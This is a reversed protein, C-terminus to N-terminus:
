AHADSPATQVEDAPKSDMPNPLTFYFTAGRDVEAEAWIRGGHREVIRKVLSLGVGTGEFGEAVHLREFVGFLKGAHRMDFGVGNDKIYYIPVGDAGQQTGIEIVGLERGQTFKIANSLLNVWAQRVMSPTGIAPPLPHLDYRLKREPSKAALEDFVEQALAQMDILEPVIQARGLRSFALLDDILNGMRQTEDRIVKLMRGGETGLLETYDESMMRSFGQIARLPARLDHSVSYTFADLEKVVAELKATREHVRQELLLNSMRLEEAARRSDEIKRLTEQSKRLETVDGVLGRMEHCKGGAGKACHGRVWIWGDSGDQRIIRCEIDLLSRHTMSEQFSRDVRARDEPHVHKLFIEYSWEAPMETYGFIQDHMLSRRLTMMTSLDVSWEGIRASELAFRLRQQSDRLAQAVSQGSVVAANLRMVGFILVLVSVSVGVPLIMIVQKGVRSSVERRSVLMREEIHVMEHLQPRIQDNLKRGKGNAVLQEAADFGHNKRAAIIQRSGEFSLDMLPELAALRPQLQSNPAVLQRVRTLCESVEPIGQNVTQIFAEDGTIVFGRTAESVEEFHGKLQHLAGIVEHTHAVSESAATLEKTASQSLAAFAVMMVLGTAFVATLKRSIQWRFGAERWAFVLVSMAILMFLVATHLAMGSLNGRGYGAIFLIIHCFVAFLGHTGVILATITLILPRRLNGSPQSMFWLALASLGFNSVANLSMRGPHAKAMAPDTVHFLLEDIGFDLGSLYEGLTLLAILGVVLACFRGGRLAWKGSSQLLFLGSGCFIFAVATNPKMYATGPILNMLRHIGLAWGALVICGVAVVIGAVWYEFSHASRRGVGAPPALPSDGVSM